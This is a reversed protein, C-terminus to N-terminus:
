PVPILNRPPFLRSGESIIVYALLAAGTLGTIEQMRRMFGNDQQQQQQVQQQQQQQQERQQDTLQRTAPDFRQYGQLQRQYEQQTGPYYEAGKREGQGRTSGLTRDWWNVHPGSPRNPNSPDPTAYDLRFGRLGDASQLGVFQGQSDGLRGYVPRPNPGLDGVEALAQNMARDFSPHQRVLEREFRQNPGYPTVQYNGQFSARQINGAGTNNAPTFRDGTDGGNLVGALANAQPNQLSAPLAVAGGPNNDRNADFDATMRDGLSPQEDARQEERLPTTRSVDSIESAM